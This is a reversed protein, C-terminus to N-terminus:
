VTVRRRGARSWGGASRTSRDRRDLESSSQGLRRPNSEITSHISRAGERNRSRNDKRDSRDARGGGGSDPDGGRHETTNDNGNNKPGEKAKRKAELSIRSLEDLRRQIHNWAEANVDGGNILTMGLSDLLGKLEGDLVGYRKLNKLSISEPSIQSLKVIATTTINHVERMSRYRQSASQQCGGILLVPLVALAILGTKKGNGKVKLATFGLAALILAGGSTILEANEIEMALLVVYGIIIVVSIVGGVILKFRSDSM